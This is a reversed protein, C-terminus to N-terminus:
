GAAVLLPIEPTSVVGIKSFTEEARRAHDDAPEGCGLLVQALAQETMAEEFRADASKAIRLSQEFALVSGTLDGAQALAWGKVRYLLAEVPPLGGLRSARGIMEDIQPLASPGNGEFVALEAQRAHTEVLHGEDKLSLFLAVTEDLVERAEDFRGTRAITRGLHMSGYAVGLQYRAARWTRVAGRLLREAEEIQGRDCLIEAINGTMTTAFVTHGAQELLERAREFLKISEDWNGEYQADVGMSGIINAQTILDGARVALDRAIEGAADRDPHGTEAYSLYTLYAARSESAVDGLLQAEKAARQCLAICELFRGQRMRVNAMETQLRVRAATGVDGLAEAARMGRSFWSLASPYRGLRVRVLGEKQLLRPQDKGDELKRASGFAAAADNYSGVLECVDGLAEWV